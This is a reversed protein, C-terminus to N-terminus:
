LKNLMYYTQRAPKLHEMMLNRLLPLDGKLLAEIMLKHEDAMQGILNGNIFTYSRIAHSKMMYLEIAEFLQPNNCARYLTKHFNINERFLTSIDGKKMAALYSRDIRKLEDVLSKDAPLPILEIAKAELLERVAYVDEIEKPSFYRVFAGKNRARVVLGLKELEFLVQRVVNRKADFQSMLDDEILRERPKLRGLAIDEELQRTIEEVRTVKQETSRTKVMTTARTM